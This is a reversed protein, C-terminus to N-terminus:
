GCRSLQVCGLRGGFQWVGLLVMDKSRQYSEDFEFAVARRRMEIVEGEFGFKILACNLGGKLLSLYEFVSVWGDSDCGSRTLHTVLQLIHLPAQPFDSHHHSAVAQNTSSQGLARGTRQPGHQPLRLLPAVRFRQLLLLWAQPVVM